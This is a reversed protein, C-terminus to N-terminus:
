RNRIISILLGLFLVAAVTLGVMGIAHQATREGVPELAIVLASGIFLAGAMISFALRTAMRGIKRIHMDLGEHRCEISLKGESLNTLITGIAGPLVKLTQAGDLAFQRLDGTLNSLSFQNTITERVFPALQDFFNLRPSLMRVLSETMATMRGLMIVPSPVILKHTSLLNMGQELVSDLRIDDMPLDYYFVILEHLERSLQKLDLRVDPEAYPALIRSMRVTDKALLAVFMDRMLQQTEPDITRVMGFDLLGLTNDPLVVINGPHVDANFLGHRFIQKSIAAVLRKSLLDRDYGRRALEDLQDIKVGEIMEMVLLKDTCLDKHVAPIRVTPDGAFIARFKLVNYMERRFDLEMMITKHFEDVMSRLNLRRFEEVHRELTPILYAVIDMDTTILSQLGPRQVKIVVSEGTEVLRAQHVQALSAAALPTPSFESFVQNLPRELETEIVQIAKAASIPAVNDQLRALELAVSEPLLDQRTSLVQGFKVFTPGLSEFAKRLNKGLYASPSASYLLSDKGCSRPHRIRALLYGLGLKAFTALIRCLRNANRYPHAMRPRTLYM